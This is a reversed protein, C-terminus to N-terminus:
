KARIYYNGDLDPLSFMDNAAYMLNAYDGAAVVKNDAAGFCQISGNLKIDSAVSTWNAGDLSIRLTAKGENSDHGGVLWVSGTFVLGWWKVGAGLDRKTWNIGDPSTFVERNVYTLAVWLGNGYAIKQVDIGTEKATWNIGDTSTSVSASVPGATITQSCAVWLGGGKTIRRVVENTPLGSTRSVWAVGDTSTFIQGGHGGAVWLGDKYAVVEVSGDNGEISIATWNIGDSSILVGPTRDRAVWLGDGYIVSAINTGPLREVWDIGDSSTCIGGDGYAIWMGAEYVVGNFYYSTAPSRYVWDVCNTSTALFGDVGVIVWLGGGYAVASILSSAWELEQVHTWDYPVIPLKLLPYDEVPVMRGDCRLYDDGFINGAFQPAQKIENIVSAKAVKNSLEVNTELLDFSTRKKLVDTEPTDDPKAIYKATRIERADAYVGNDTNISVKVSTIQVYNAPAGTLPLIEGDWVLLGSRAPETTPERIIYNEGGCFSLNQLQFIQSQIFDLGEITVPYKGNQATTPNSSYNGKDM